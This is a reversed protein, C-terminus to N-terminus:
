IRELVEYCNPCILSNPSRPLVTERAARVKTKGKAVKAKGFFLNWFWSAIMLMFQLRAPVWSYRSTEYHDVTASENVDDEFFRALPYM